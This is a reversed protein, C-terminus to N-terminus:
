SFHHATKRKEGKYRIQTYIIKKTKKSYNKTSFCGRPKYFTAKCKWPIKYLLLPKNKTDPKPNTKRNRRFETEFRFKQHLRRWRFLSM